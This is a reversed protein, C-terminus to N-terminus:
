EASPFVIANSRGGSMARSENKILVKKLSVMVARMSTMALWWPIGVSM